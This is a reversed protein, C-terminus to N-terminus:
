MSMKLWVAQSGKLRFQSYRKLSITFTKHATSSGYEDVCDYLASACGFCHEEVFHM